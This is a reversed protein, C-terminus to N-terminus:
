EQFDMNLEATRLPILDDIVNCGHSTAAHRWRQAYIGFAMRLRDSSIEKMVQEVNRVTLASIDTKPCALDFILSINCHVPM